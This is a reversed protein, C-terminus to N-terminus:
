CSVIWNWTSSLRSILLRCSKKSLEVSSFHFVGAIVNSNHQTSRLTCSSLLPWLSPSWLERVTLSCSKSLRAKTSSPRRHSNFLCSFHAIRYQSLDSRSDEDNNDLARLHLKSNVDIAPLQQQLWALMNFLEFVSLSDSSPSPSFFIVM